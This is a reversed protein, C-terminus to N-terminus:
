KEVFRPFVMSIQLVSVRSFFFLVLFIFDVVLLMQLNFDNLPIFSQNIFTFFTLIGFLVCILSSTIVWKTNKIIHIM